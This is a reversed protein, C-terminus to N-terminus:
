MHMVPLLDFMQLFLVVGIIITAVWLVATLRMWKKLNKKPLRGFAYVTGLVIAPISVVAHLITTGSLASFFQVDSDIYYRVFSPLMGLFVAGLTLAVAASLTWRHQLLNEKSKGIYGYGIGMLLIGLSVLMVTMITQSVVPPTGAHLAILWLPFM